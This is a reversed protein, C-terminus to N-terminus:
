YRAAEIDSPEREDKPKPLDKPPPDLQIQGNTKGRLEDITPDVMAPM